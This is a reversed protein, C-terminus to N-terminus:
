KKYKTSSENGKGHSLSFVDFGKGTGSTQVYTIRAGFRLNRNAKFNFVIPFRNMNNEHPSVRANQCCNPGICRPISRLIYFM